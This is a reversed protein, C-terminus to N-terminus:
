FPGHEMRMEKSSMKGGCFPCCFFQNSNNIFKVVITDDKEIYKWVGLMFQEGCDCAFYLPKDVTAFKM